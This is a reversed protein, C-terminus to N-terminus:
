SQEGSSLMPERSEGALYFGHTALHLVRPPSALAMLGEKSAKADSWVEAPEDDFKSLRYWKKVQIAEDGSAPLQAFGDRFTGAARAIAGSLRQGDTNAIFVSDSKTLAVPAEFDIGGLALLGRAPKDPDSRLLDRGTALLRVEKREQWFRGDALKLRGFPLVDLVGDPAIYIVTAVGLKVGFSAFLRRYLEAAVEDGKAASLPDLLAKILEYMDSVPALDTVVPEDSGSLLLAAFPPEALEGTRADVPRFQRFEHRLRPAMFDPWHRGVNCFVRDLKELRATLAGADLLDEIPM